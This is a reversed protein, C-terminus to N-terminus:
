LWNYDSYIEHILKIYRHAFCQTTFNDLYSNQIKSGLQNLEVDNLDKFFTIKKILDNVTNDYLKICDCTKAVSKNGGTNSAIIPIGLSMVELLVLDYFTKRNPLVFVDVASLLDSPNVWGAEIWLNNKLPKIIRSPMGGNLFAIDNKSNQNLIVSAANRLIDYGKIENHRGIYGVVFKGEVGYKRKAEQKSMSRKLAQAGTPIFRVDKKCILSNFYDLSDSLPEMAEKSPFILIDSYGLAKQEICKWANKFEQAYKESYGEEKAQCYYENSPSEPTHNTFMIKVNNINNQSLLNKVRIVDGATHVHITKTKDFNIANAQNEAMRISNEDRLFNIYNQMKRRQTPLLQTLIPRLGYKDVFEKIKKNKNANNNCDSTNKCNFIISFDNPSDIANLGCLLNALYGTPGGARIDLYWDYYIINQPVDHNM